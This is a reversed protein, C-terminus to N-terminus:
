FGFSAGVFPGTLSADFRYSGDEYNADLYRWGGVLMGWRFEYGVTGILQSSLTSDGKGIDGQLHVQWKGRYRWSGRAGIVADTWQSDGGLSRDGLAAGSLDVAVDIDYYRAGVFLDLHADERALLDRGGFAQLVTGRVEADASSYLNPVRTPTDSRVRAYTWDGFVTWRENRWSLNLMAGALQMNNWLRGFDAGVGGGPAAGDAVGV